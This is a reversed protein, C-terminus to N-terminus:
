LSEKRGKMDKSLGAAATVLHIVTCVSGVYPWKRKKWETVLSMTESVRLHGEWVKEM